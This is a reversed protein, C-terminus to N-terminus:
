SVPVPPRVSELLETIRRWYAASTYERDDFAARLRKARTAREQPDDLLRRAAVALAEADGPDVFLVEDDTFYEDLGGARSAVAAGGAAATELLTTIGSAHLNPRVSVISVTADRYLRVLEEVTETPRVEVRAGGDVATRSSAVRLTVDGGLRDHAAFLTPWDRARDNGVSLLDPGGELPAGDLSAYISSVGFPVYVHVGDPVLREGAETNPRANAIFLDVRALAWRILRRRWKPHNDWEAFLWITQGILVPRKIRLVRFVTAVGLYEVESHCYVYEARRLASLHRLPQGVDFVLRRKSLRSLRSTFSRPDGGGLVRTLWGGPAHNAGYPARDPARGADFRRAYEDLQLESAVLVTLEPLTM